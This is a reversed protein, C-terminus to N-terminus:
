VKGIKVKAFARSKKSVERITLIGEKQLRVMLIKKARRIILPLKNLNGGSLEFAKKVVRNFQDMVAEDTADNLRDVEDIFAEHKKKDM